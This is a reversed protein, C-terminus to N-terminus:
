ETKKLCGTYLQEELYLQDTGAIYLVITYNTMVANTHKFYNGACYAVSCQKPPKLRYLFFNGCKVVKINYAIGCVPHLWPMVACATVDIVVGDVTPHHGNLWIPAYTGCRRNGPNTEPMKNGVASVFRYWTGDKIFRRDCLDTTENYATSRRVDTVTDYTGSCPNQANSIALFLFISLISLMSWNMTSLAVTLQVIYSFCHDVVHYIVPVHYSVNERTQNTCDFELHSLRM